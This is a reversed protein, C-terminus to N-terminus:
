AGDPGNLRNRDHPAFWDIALGNPVIHTPNLFHYRAPEATFGSSGDATIRDQFAVRQRKFAGTATTEAIFQACAGSHITSLPHHITRSTM